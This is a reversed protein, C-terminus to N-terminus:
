GRYVEDPDFLPADGLDALAVTEGDAVVRRYFCSRRGTHCAAGRGTLDVALWLVDQDCDVRMEVLKQVEGSTEGKKWIRDRSRSFYHVESTALTRALAAPNMHAVMLVEGSSADTAVATILGDAGFRPAFATGTEIETKTLTVPDAFDM